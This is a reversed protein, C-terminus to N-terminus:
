LLTIKIRKRSFTPVDLDIGKRENIPTHEFLGREDFTFSMQEKTAPKKEEIKEPKFEVPKQEIPKEAPVFEKPPEANQEDYHSDDNDDDDVTPAPTQNAVIETSAIKTSEPAKVSMETANQTPDNDLETPQLQVETKSSVTLIKVENVNEDACVSFFIKETVDFSEHAQKLIKKIDNMSTAKPCKISVLMNSSKSIGTMMPSAKIEDFTQQADELNASACGVYARNGSFSTKLTASDIKLFAKKSFGAAFLEVTQAVKANARKFAIEIPEDSEGILSDNDLMAAITSKGKLFEFSKKALERKSAGEVQMPLALLSIILTGEQALKAIIPTIISATGGGLGGLLILVETNRAIKALYQIYRMAVEKALKTDGGTGSGNQNIAMPLKKSAQANKVTELSTDVAVTLVNSLNLEHVASLMRIGAEGIGVVRIKSEASM